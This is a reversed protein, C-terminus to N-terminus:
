SLGQKEIKRLWTVIQRKMDLPSTAMREDLVRSVEKVTLAAVMDAINGVLRTRLQVDREEFSLLGARDLAEAADHGREMAEALVARVQQLTREDARLM